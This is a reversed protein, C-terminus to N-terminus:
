HAPGGGCCAAGNRTAPEPLMPAAHSRESQQEQGAAGGGGSRAGGLLCPAREEGCVRDLPLRVERSVRVADGSQRHFAEHEEVLPLDPGQADRVLPRVERLVERRHGEVAPVIEIGRTQTEASPVSPATATRLSTITRLTSSPDM